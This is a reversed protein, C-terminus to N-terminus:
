LRFAYEGGSTEMVPSKAKSTRRPCDWNPELPPAGLFSLCFWGGVWTCIPVPLTQGGVWHPTCHRHTPKVVWRAAHVFEAQGGGGVVVVVVVVVVTVVMVVWGGMCGGVRGVGGAPRGARGGVWGGVWGGVCFFPHKRPIDAPHALPGPPGNGM